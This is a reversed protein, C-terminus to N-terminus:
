THLFAIKNIRRIRWRRDLCNMNLLSTPLIPFNPHYGYAAEKDLAVTAASCSRKQLTFKRSVTGNHWVGKIWWRQFFGIKHIQKFDILQQRAISPHQKLAWELSATRLPVVVQRTFLLIPPLRAECFQTASSWNYSNLGPDKEWSTGM